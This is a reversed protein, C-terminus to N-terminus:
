NKSQNKWYTGTETDFKAKNFQAIDFRGPLISPNKKTWSVSKKSQNSYNSNNKNQNSWTSM